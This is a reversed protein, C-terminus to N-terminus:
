SLSDNIIATIKIIQILANSDPIYAPAMSGKHGLLASIFVAVIGLVFIVALGTMIKIALKHNKIILFSILAIACISLLAEGLYVEYGFLTYLYGFKFFTGIFYNSFLPLSTANAWLMAFYVLALFWATIFGRDYGFVEKSYTYAGGASPYNFIMYAYNKSIVIMILAGVILGLTSGLPGAQALYTNCTVVLSGWGVSTGIAFAWASLPSLNKKLSRNESM